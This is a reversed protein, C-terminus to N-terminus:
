LYIQIWWFIAVAFPEVALAYHMYFPGDLQSLSTNQIQRSSKLPLVPYDTLYLYKTRTYLIKLSYFYSGKNPYPPFYPILVSWSPLKNHNLYMTHFKWLIIEFSFDFFLSILNHPSIPHNQFYNFLMTSLSYSWSYM